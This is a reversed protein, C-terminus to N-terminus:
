SARRQGPAPLTAHRTTDAINAEHIIRRTDDAALLLPTAHPRAIFYGQGLAIGLDKVARLEAATEIGEAIIEHLPSVSHEGTHSSLFHDAMIQDALFKARAATRYKEVPLIGPM